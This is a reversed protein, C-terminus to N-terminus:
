KPTDTLDLFEFEMSLREIKSDGRGQAATKHAMYAAWNEKGVLEAEQKAELGKIEADVQDETFVGVYEM